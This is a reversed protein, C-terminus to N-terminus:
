GWNSEGTYGCVGVRPSNVVPLFMDDSHEHKKACEDCLLGADNWICETCVETAPKGCNDCVMEPPENRAMIQVSRGVAQGDRAGIVKLKLDTTSGFDYEYDFAMGINLVKQLPSKMSRDGPEFVASYYRVRNITFASMHGCCELWIDRLFQDFDALTLDAPAELHMWYMPAYAGEVQLHLISTTRTKGKGLGLPERAAVKVQDCAALHKTMAGKSFTKECYSCKGVSQKAM